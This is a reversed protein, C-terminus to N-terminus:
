NKANNGEKAQLIAVAIMLKLGDDDNSTTCFATGDILITYSHHQAAVEFQLTTM